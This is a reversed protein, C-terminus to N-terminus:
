INKTMGIGNWLVSMPNCSILSTIYKYYSSSEFPCLFRYIPLCFTYWFYLVALWTWFFLFCRSVGHAFSFHLCTWSDSCLFTLISYCSHWLIIRSYVWWWTGKLGFCLFSIEFPLIPKKRFSASYKYASTCDCRKYFIDNFWSPISIHIKLFSVLESRDKPIFINIGIKIREVHMHPPFITMPRYVILTTM